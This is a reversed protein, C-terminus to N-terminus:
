KTNNFETLCFTNSKLVKRRLWKFSAFSATQWYSFVASELLQLRRKSRSWVKYTLDLAVQWFVLYKQRYCSSVGTTQLLCCYVRPQRHTTDFGLSSICSPILNRSHSFFLNSLFFKEFLSGTMYDKKRSKLLVVAHHVNSSLIISYKCFM